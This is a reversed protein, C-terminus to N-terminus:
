LRTPADLLDDLAVDFAVHLTMGIPASGLSWLGLMSRRPDPVWLFAAGREPLERFQDPLEDLAEIVLEDFEGPPREPPPLQALAESRDVLRRFEPEPMEKGILAVTAWATVLVIAVAGVVLALLGGLGAFSPPNLILLVLGPILATLAAARWPPGLTEGM